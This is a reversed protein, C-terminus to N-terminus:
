KCVEKGLSDRYYRDIEDVHCRAGKGNRYPSSWVPGEGRIREAEIGRVTIKRYLDAEKKSLWGRLLPPRKALDDAVLRAITIALKQFEPPTDEFDTPDIDLM